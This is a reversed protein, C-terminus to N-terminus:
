CDYLVKVVSIELRHKIAQQFEPNKFNMQPPLGM